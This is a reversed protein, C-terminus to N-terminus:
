HFGTKVTDTIALSLDRVIVEGASISISYKSADTLFLGLTTVCAATNACVPDVGYRRYYINASVAASQSIGRSVDKRQSKVMGSYIPIAVAALIGVIVAVVIVEVLVFGAM